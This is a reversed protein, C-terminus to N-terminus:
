HINEQGSHSATGGGRLPQRFYGMTEVIPPIGALCQARRYIISNTFEDLWHQLPQHVHVHM